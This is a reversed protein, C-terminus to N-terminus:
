ADSQFCKVGPAPTLCEFGQGRVRLHDAEIQGGHRAFVTAPRLGSRHAGDLPPEGREGPMEGLRPSGSSRASRWIASTIVADAAVVAPRRLLFLGHQGFVQQAHDLREVAIQAAQAVAGDQKSPKAPPRRRESIAPRSQPGSLGFVAGAPDLNQVLAHDDDSRPLVPQRSTSIPRPELSAVQGTTASCVQSLSARM